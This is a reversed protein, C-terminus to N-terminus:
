KKLLLYKKVADNDDLLNDNNTQSFNTLKSPVTKDIRSLVTLYNDGYVKQLEQMLSESYVSGETVVEGFGYYAYAERVKGWANKVSVQNQSEQLLKVSQERLYDLYKSVRYPDPNTKFFNIMSLTENRINDSLFCDFMLSYRWQEDLIFSNFKEKFKKYDEFSLNEKFM